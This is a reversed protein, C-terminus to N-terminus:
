GDGDVIEPPAVCHVLLFWPQLKVAVNRMGDIIGADGHIFRKQLGRPLFGVCDGVIEHPVRGSVPPENGFDVPAGVRQGRQAQLLAVADGDGHGGRRLADDSKVRGVLQPRHGAHNMRKGRGLFNFEVEVDGFAAERERQVGKVGLELLHLGRRRKLRQNQRANRIIQAKEFADAEVQGFSPLNWFDRRVGHHFPPRIQHFATIGAGRRGSHIRVIHGHDEVAASGRANGLADHQGVHIENGLPFHHRFPPLEVVVRGHQGNQRDKM